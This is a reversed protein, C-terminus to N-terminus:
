WMPRADHGDVGGCDRMAAAMEGFTATRRVAPRAGAPRVAATTGNSVVDMTFKNFATSIFTDALTTRPQRTPADEETGADADADRDRM